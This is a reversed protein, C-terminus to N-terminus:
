SPKIDRHVIGLKDHIYSIGSLLQNSWYYIDVPRIQQNLFHKTSIEEELTGEKKIKLNRYGNLREL